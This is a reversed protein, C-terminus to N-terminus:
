PIPILHVLDQLHSFTPCLWTDRAPFALLLTGLLPSCLGVQLGVRRGLPAANTEEDCLSDSQFEWVFVTTGGGSVEQVFTEWSATLNM